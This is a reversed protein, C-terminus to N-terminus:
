TTSPSEREMMASIEAAVVEPPRGADIWRYRADARFWTWQRKAYRRTDRRLRAIAEGLTMRGAVYPVLEKYGLGQLSPLDPSYGLDLLRRVEDILGSALQEDIRRDIREYLIGRDLTLAVMVTHRPVHQASPVPGARRAQGSGDAAPALRPPVGRQLASIPMGTRHYVELARIVRRVNHPHIRAAADADVVALRRHLTGAGGLREEEELHARLVWDPKAVPISLGDVVARIYLGTGGVLLAMRGRRCIEAVRATALRQYDALTFIDGPDAVDILHHPVAELDAPSPKSTGIDLGRYVTRSDASVIEGSARRAVALAVATKGVATPGAIVLLSPEPDM